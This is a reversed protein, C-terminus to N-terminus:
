ELIEVDGQYSYSLLRIDKDQQTAKYKEFAEKAIDDLLRECDGDTAVLISKPWGWDKHGVCIMMAREVKKM